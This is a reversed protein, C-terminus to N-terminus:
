NVKYYSKYWNVFNEIGEGISVKPNYGLKKIKTTDSWTTQTDAPHMAVMEKIAKRNLNKEIEHVFDLLNVKEGRGINYIEKGKIDLLLIIGNVIDDIYTFDRIMDGNNFLKIPNGLIINKTFDFLAMDPRGWPGYVTFFRLSITNPISSTKFQSETTAKTYGYPNLQHGLKEDEKWPLPNGAMVCSTSAHLIRNVGDKECRDILNQSAIINNQIYLHPYLMSHRVGAYAALHIVTEVGELSPQSTTLRHANKYFKFSESTLDCDFVEIGLDTLKSERTRKLSSDYYDNFNDLGSVDHGQSFLKRALHYGIFGAIGTIFIKSM